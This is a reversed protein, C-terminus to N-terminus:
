SGTTGDYTRTQTQATVTIAAQTIVGTADPVYTVDYNGGSNGDSIVLGSATLTKGTGANKTDFAQTAETTVSDGTFITGTRVPNVSSGTTGDYTRTQTQATVTIAAKTIAGTADPVYTVDYNGGSNGDDIVLGSATLTKGTGVNKNDFVQTAETSVSDGTFITGTRVPNVSSGTTGDYTRTQTQATVTIAAKTIEGTTDPVYTVDYNNGSNGDSIVLGSATLTKGTGANKTDFAQTAETTVSDGTFITGTRVPNVSSDTTGDYTRTQTQATVTIAAKTIDATTTIETAALTYNAADPGSLSLNYVTVTKGTGVHKTDFTASTYSVTLDDGDVRDDDLTVTAVATGDYIRSTATATVTLVQASIAFTDEASTSAFNSSGAYTVILKYSGANTPAGALATWGGLGDSVYYTAVLSVSDLPGETETGGSPTITYTALDYAETDYSMDDATVTITTGVRLAIESGSVDYVFSNSGLTLASENLSGTGSITGGATILSIRETPVADAGGGTVSVTAGTLDISGTAHLFSETRGAYPSDVGLSITAGASGTFTLDGVIEVQSPGVPRLTVAQAVSVDGTYQGPWVVIIDGSAATDVANDLSGGVNVYVTAPARYDKVAYGGTLLSAATSSDNFTNQVSILDLFDDTTSLANGVISVGSGLGIGEVSTKFTNGSLDLFSVNDTGSIGYSVSGQFTNGTVTLDTPSGYYNGQIGRYSNVFVNDVISGGSYGSLAIARGNASNQNSITFGEVRTNAAAIRVAYPGSPDTSAGQITTSAAGATSKVTLTKDILVAGTYTGPGVFVTNGTSATTVGRQVDPATTSSAAWFSNATVFVTGSKLTVTGLNSADVSDAVQDAMSLLNATTTTGTLAVGNFVNPTANVANLTTGTSRQAIAVAPLGANFNSNSFTNGSLTISAALVGTTGAVSSADAALGPEVNLAAVYGTATVDNYTFSNNSITSNSSAAYYTPDSSKGGALVLGSGGIRRFTNGDATSNVLCLWAGSGASIDQVTNNNFTSNSMTSAISIGSRANGFTNRTITAGTLQTRVQPVSLPTNTAFITNDDITLNSYSLAASGDRFMNTLIVGRPGGTTASSVMNIYNREITVNAIEASVSKTANDISEGLTIGQQQATTGYSSYIWNNRLTINARYALSANGPKTSAVNTRVNIADRAPIRPSISFGDITVNDAQIDIVFSSSAATGDILTEGGTRASGTAKVGAQSGVLKLSKTILLNESYTGAAVLVTNGASAATIAASITTYESGAGVIVVTTDSFQLKEVG